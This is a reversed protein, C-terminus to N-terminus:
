RNNGMRGQSVLHRTFFPSLPTYLSHNAAQLRCGARRMETKDWILDQGEQQRGEKFSQENEQRHTWDLGLISHKEKRFQKHYSTQYRLFQRKSASRRKRWGFHARKPLLDDYHGQEFACSFLLLPSTSQPKTFYWGFSVCLAKKPFKSTLGNLRSLCSNGWNGLLYRTLQQWCGM